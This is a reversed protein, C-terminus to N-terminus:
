PGQKPLRVVPVDDRSGGHFYFSNGASDIVVSLREVRLSERQAVGTVDYYCLALQEQPAKGALAKPRKQYLRESEANVEAVTAPFSGLLQGSPSTTAEDDRCAAEVDLDAPV